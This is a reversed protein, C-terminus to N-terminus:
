KVIGTSLCLTGKKLEGRKLNSHRLTRHQQFKTIDTVNEKLINTKPNQSNHEMLIKIAM